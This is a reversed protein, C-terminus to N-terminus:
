RVKVVKQTVFGDVEIFYIGPQLKDPEVVRGTIDFVKCQKGEPLQLPGSFITGDLHNNKISIIKQEEIGTTAYKITVYDINNALDYSYGTVYIHGMNDLAIASAGDYHNGPGNYREVWQEIGTSDYKITAYDLRTGSGTSTGTVYVGGEDDVAIASVVDYDQAPGDYYAVWQEIGATSYKVIIYDNDLVGSCGAVYVSGHNDIALTRADDMGDEPSNYRAVWQEIGTSDYKITVIDCATKMGVSHGTVYINGDNDLDLAYAADYDNILGDYQAVWLEAGTSDYKITVYDVYTLSDRAWGTVYVNGANDVAIAQARDPGNASGNYRAVWQEVGSSNYKVTAYDYDTGSGGSGGTVHVNGEHDVAIAYAEGRCYDAVWQENGLSDYKVTVYHFGQTSYYSRGTVCVNHDSDVAIAYSDDWWNEPGDYRAVWEQVGSTNYKITAYDYIWGFGTSSGTVYINGDADTVVANAYDAANVPGDYRAVWIQASIFSPLM